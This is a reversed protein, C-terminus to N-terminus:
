PLRINLGATATGTWPDIAEVPDDGVRITTGGGWYDLRGGVFVELGGAVAVDLELAVGAGAVTRGGADQRETVPQVIEARLAGVEGEARARLELLGSALSGAMGIGAGFSARQASIGTADRSWTRGYAGTLSAYVPGGLAFDGGVEGRWWPRAGDWATGAGLRVSTRSRASHGAVEVTDATGRPGAGPLDAGGGAVLSAALLGAARLREALPDAGHFAAERSAGPGGDDAVLDVRVRTLGASFTVVIRARAPEGAGVPGLVCGGPGAGDSCAQVLPRLDAPVAAPDTALDLVIPATM